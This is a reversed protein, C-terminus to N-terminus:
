YVIETLFLAFLVLCGILIGMVGASFLYAANDFGSRRAKGTQSLAYLGLILALVGYGIKAGLAIHRLPGESYQPDPDNPQNYAASTDEHDVLGQAFRAAHGDSSSLDPYVLRACVEANRWSCEDSIAFSVAALQCYFVHPLGRGSFDSLVATDPRYVPWWGPDIQRDPNSIPGLLRDCRSLDDIDCDLLQIASLIDIFAQRNPVSNEANDFVLINEASRVFPAKAEFVNNAASAWILGIFGLPLQSNFKDGGGFVVVFSLAGFILGLM